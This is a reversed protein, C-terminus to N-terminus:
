IYSGLLIVIASGTFILPCLKFPLVAVRFGTLLCIVSLANLMLFSLGYVAKAVTSTHDLCTAMGVLLGTFILAAGEVIWEMAIIRRNDRSIDGFGKVVARTPVLHAIGWLCVLISGSYLLVQNLM